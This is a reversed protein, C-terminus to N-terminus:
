KGVIASEDHEKGETNFIFRLSPWQKELWQTDKYEGSSM